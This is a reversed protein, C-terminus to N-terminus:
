NDILNILVDVRVGVDTVATMKNGGEANLLTTTKNGGSYELSRNKVFDESLVPVEAGTEIM